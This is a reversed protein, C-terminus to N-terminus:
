DGLLFDFERIVITNGVSINDGIVQLITKLDEQFKSPNSYVLAPKESIQTIPENKSYAFVGIHPAGRTEHICGDRKSWRYLKNSM